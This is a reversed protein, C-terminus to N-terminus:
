RSELRLHEDNGADDDSGFHAGGFDIADALQEVVPSADSELAHFNGTKVEGLHTRCFCAPELVQKVIKVNGYLHRSAEVGAIVDLSGEADPRFEDHEAIAREFFEVPERRHRRLERMLEDDRRRRAFSPRAITAGHMRARQM